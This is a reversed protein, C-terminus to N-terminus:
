SKDGGAKNELRKGMWFADLVSYIWIIAFATILYSFSALDEGKLKEMIDSLHFRALEPQSVLSQIIFALKITTGVLLFFVVSLIILGKKLNRNMIQGLGPVILASSLTSLLYKKM